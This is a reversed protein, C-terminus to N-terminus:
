KKVSIEISPAFEQNLLSAIQLSAGPSTDLVTKLDEKQTSEVARMVLNHSPAVKNDPMIENLYSNYDNTSMNFSFATGAITLIITKKM